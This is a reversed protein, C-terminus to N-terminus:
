RSHLTSPQNNLTEKAHDAHNATFRIRCRVETREGNSASLITLWHWSGISGLGLDFAWIHSNDKSM